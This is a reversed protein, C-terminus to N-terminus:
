IIGLRKIKKPKLPMTKWRLALREIDVYYTPVRTRERVVEIYPLAQTYINIVSTNHSYRLMREDYIGEDIGISVREWHNLVYNIQVSRKKQETYREAEKVDEPMAKQAPFAARINGNPDNHLQRIVDYGDRLQLDSRSAFMLDATQKRRAIVKSTWVSIVAVMLGLILLVNRLLESSLSQILPLVGTCVTEM